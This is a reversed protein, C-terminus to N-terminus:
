CQQSHQHLGYDRSSLRRRLEPVFRLATGDYVTEAEIMAFRELRITDAENLRFVPRAAKDQWEQLSRTYYHHLRILRRAELEIAGSSEDQTRFRHSSVIHTVFAPQVFCKCCIFANGSPLMDARTRVARQTYNALVGGQPPTKHGSTGFMQWPLRVMQRHELMQLAAPLSYGQLPFVFEDVDIFSM